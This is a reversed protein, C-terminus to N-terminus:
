DAPALRDQLGVSNVSLHLLEEEKEEEEAV